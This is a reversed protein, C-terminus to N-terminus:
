NRAGYTEDAGQLVFRLDQGRVTAVLGMGGSGGQISNPTTTNSGATSRTAGGGGNGAPGASAKKSIAAGIIVLAVGAAIAVWPNTFAKKFADMALGYAILASGIAQLFSGIVGLVQSGFDKPAVVASGIAAAFGTIAGETASEFARNLTELDQLAQQQAPTLEKYEGKLGNVASAFEEIGIKGTRFKTRLTDLQSGLQASPGDLGLIAYKTSLDSLENASKDADNLLKANAAEKLAAIKDNLDKQRQLQKAALEEQKNDYKEDIAILTDTLLQKDTIKDAAAAKENERSAEINEYESRGFKANEQLLKQLNSKYTALPDKTGKGGTIFGFLGDEGLIKAITAAMSKSSSTIDEELEDVNGKLGKLTNQYSKNLSTQSPGTSIGGTGVSAVQPSRKEFEALKKKAEILEGFKSALVSTLAKETANLLIQKEQLRIFEELSQKAPDYGDKKLEQLAYKYGDTGEEATRLVEAYIRTQAIPGQAEALAEGAAKAAKKAERGATQWKEAFVNILVLLGTIGLVIPGSLGLSVAVAQLNNQVGRFGYQADDLAYALQTVAQSSKNGGKTVGAQAGKVKNAGKVFGSADLDARYRLNEDKAM